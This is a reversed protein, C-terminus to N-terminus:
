VHRIEDQFAPRNLYKAKILEVLEIFEERFGKIKKMKRLYWVIERYHARGTRRDAFSIIM